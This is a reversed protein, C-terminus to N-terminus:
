KNNGTQNQQYNRRVNIYHHFDHLNLQVKFSVNRLVDGVESHRVSVNDFKLM